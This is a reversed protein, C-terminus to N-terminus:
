SLFNCAAACALKTYPLCMHMYLGTHVELQGENKLALHCTPM